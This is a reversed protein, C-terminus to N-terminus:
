LLYESFVKSSFFEAMNEMTSIESKLWIDYLCDLSNPMKLLYRITDNSIDINEITDYIQYKFNIEYSKEFIKEKEQLMMESKFDMYEKEIRNLFQKKIM